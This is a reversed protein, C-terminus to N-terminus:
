WGPSNFGDSFQRSRLAALPDAGPGGITNAAQKALQALAAPVVDAAAPLAAIPAVPPVTAYRRQGAMEAMDGVLGRSRIDGVSNGHIAASAAALAAGQDAPTISASIGPTPRTVPMDITTKPSVQASGAGPARVSPLNLAAKPDYPTAVPGPAVRRPLRPGSGQFGGAGSFTPGAM